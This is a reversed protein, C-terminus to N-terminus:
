RWKLLFLHESFNLSASFSVCSRFLLALTQSWLGVREVLCENRVYGCIFHNKKKSRGRIAIIIRSNLLVTCGGCPDSDKHGVTEWRIVFTVEEMQFLWPCKRHLTTGQYNHINLGQTVKRQVRDTSGRGGRDWGEIKDGQPTWTCM